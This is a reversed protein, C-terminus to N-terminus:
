MLIKTLNFNSANDSCCFMYVNIKIFKEHIEENLVLFMYM